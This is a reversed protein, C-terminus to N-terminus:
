RSLARVYSVVQWIEEESLITKWAPMASNFPPNLGGESVRWFLYGESLDHMMTSDALSAPKPTLAAAAPGDGKGELGHCAVCRTEFITKGAAIAEDNDSFPNNKGAFEAPAEMHAHEMGEMMHEPEETPASAATNCAILSLGSLLTLISILFLYKATM